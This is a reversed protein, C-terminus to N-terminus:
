STLLREVEAKYFNIISEEEGERLLGRDKLRRLGERLNEQFGEALLINGERIIREIEASLLNKNWNQALISLITEWNDKLPNLFLLIREELNRKLASEDTGAAELPRAPPYFDLRKEGRGEYIITYFPVAVISIESLKLQAVCGRLAEITREKGSIIRMINEKIVTYARKIREINENIRGIETDRAERLLNIKEREGSILSHYREEIGKISAEEERLVEAINRELGRLKETLEEVRSLYMDVRKKASRRRRGGEAGSYKDVLARNKLLAREVVEKERLLARLKKGYERRLRSIERAKEEELRRIKENIEGEFERERRMYERTALDLEKVLMGLRGSVEGELVRLTYKLMSVDAGLRSILASFEKTINSIEDASLRLRMIRHGEHGALDIPMLEGELSSIACLLKKDNIICRTHYERFSNAINKFLNAWEDLAEMFDGLVISRRKLEETFQSLDPVNIDTLTFGFINLGDLILCGGSLPTCLLPYYAKLIAKIRETGRFIIGARKRRCFALCSIAAVEEEPSVRRGVGPAGIIYPLALIRASIGAEMGNRVVKSMSFLLSSRLLSQTSSRM